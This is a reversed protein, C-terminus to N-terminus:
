TDKREKIYYLRDHIKMGLEDVKENADGIRLMSVSEMVWQPVDAQALNKKIRGESSPLTFDVINFTGDDNISIRLVDQELNDAAMGYTLMNYVSVASYWVGSYRMDLSISQSLPTPAEPHNIMREYDEWEVFPPAGNKPIMM